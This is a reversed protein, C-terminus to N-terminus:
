EDVTEEKENVDISETNYGESKLMTKFVKIDADADVIDSQYLSEKIKKFAINADSLNKKASTLYKQSEKSTLKQEEINEFKKVMKVTVPLYYEFFTDIKEAKKPEEKITNIISDVTKTIAKVDKRVTEDEISMILNSMEKNQKKADELVEKISKSFGKIKIKDPSLLLENAGFAAAGIALAPLVPMSLALYPVAFFTGGVIASIIEKNKM